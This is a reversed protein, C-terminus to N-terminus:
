VLDEEVAVGHRFSLTLLVVLVEVLGLGVTCLKLRTPCSRDVRDSAVERELSM